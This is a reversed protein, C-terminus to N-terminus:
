TPAPRLLLATCSALLDKEQAAWTGFLSMLTTRTQSGAKSRTGGSIKGAIVPPRLSREALNNTAPVRPDAVFTFLDARFRHIRKALTHQPATKCTLYPQALGDLERAFQDAAQRRAKQRPDSFSVARLYIAHIAEVWESVGPTQGHDTKLQHTDRLLHSWCYQHGGPLGMYVAYFDSVITGAYDKGFVEEAVTRARSKRYRFYRHLPTVFAWLYGNQGDERWGTEDSCVVPSAVVAQRIAEVEDRGAKAVGATLAVIEGASIQLGHVERFFRRIMRIPLRYNIHLLAALSQIQMGFRQKGVAGVEADSLRPLVRTGCVGCRRGIFRHEIIQVQAPILDIVQRVRHVSGGTLKRGCDPCVEVAHERVATPSERHRVFAQKRHRRPQPERKPRHAKVWSPPTSGKGRLQANEAELEQVRIQLAEVEAVLASVQAKLADIIALLEERSAAVENEV